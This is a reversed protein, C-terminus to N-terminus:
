KVLGHSVAYRTLGATSDIGLKRKINTRHTEVTRVSLDLDRAIDKNSLGEALM